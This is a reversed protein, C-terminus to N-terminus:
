LDEIDEAEVDIVGAEQAMLANRENMEKVLGIIIQNVTVDTKQEPQDGFEAPAIKALYKLADTTSQVRAKATLIAWSIAESQAQDIIDSLDRLSSHVDEPNEANEVMRLWEYFTSRHIGLTKAAHLPPVGGLVLKRFAALFKKSIRRPVAGPQLKGM